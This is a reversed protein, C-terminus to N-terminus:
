LPGNRTNNIFMTLQHLSLISFDIVTVFISKSFRTIMYLIKLNVYNLLNRFNYNRLDDDIGFINYM